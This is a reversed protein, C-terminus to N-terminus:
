EKESPAHSGSNSPGVIEAISLWGHDFTFTRARGAPDQIKVIRSHESSGAREVVYLWYRERHKCAREFQTRSLGVPRNQLDGTMAKVEIWRIPKQDPGLAVLDFGPNNTQTRLLDPEREIILTIAQDELNLRAQHDLGDPDQDDEEPHTAVYSFFERKGRTAMRTDEAHSTSTTAPGGGSVGGTGASGNQADHVGSHSGIGARAETGHSGEPDSVAATPDPQNGLLGTLADAVSEPGTEDAPQVPEDRIGLRARLDTESTVGLEKLLDLIGPDIGAEIALAEIVPPKFRIKSQLFPNVKWGTQEFVTFEPPRLVGNRDPVWASENLRKIFAADFTCSRHQFYFWKYTGSFAGPGRRDQIDCLAEWLVRAKAAAEEPGAQSLTKFLPDLGRLTYDDVKGNGSINAAEARTRMELLEQASFRSRVPKLQLYATAGCAELLERADEGRLCPYDDDVLLVGEVGDFLAKLRKTAIYLESPRSIGQWGSGADVVMVFNSKRLATLLKDRQGKSDTQFATIIRTIDSEYDEIQVEPGRYRPLLNRVVDDVPDPQRLQLLSFFKRAGESQCVVPRVTPFDTAMPGPLFAQPKEDNFPTVHTGDKLRVVPVEGFGRNYVLSPQTSLFEYFRIIWRDNQAELFSKSLRPLISEPVVEKIGLEKMLYRRLDPTLDPTIDENLWFMQGESQFLSGLQRPSFIERLSQTRALLAASAAVHGRGFRPLLRESLFAHRVAEFLPAFMSAEGFKSRDLPLSQLASTGLLGLRKLSRLAKVLLTGTEQVLRQNWRDYRPVNDRSPTTRYPGQVLFGLNTTVITPFFVILSSDPVRQVAKGDDSLAFAVEVFGVDRGSEDRVPSSFILWREETSETLGAQHGLVTVERIGDGFDQPKVRKYFGSAGGSVSWSVEEVQRLFLLARPGLTRLGDVVDNFLQDDESRIPLILVTQENKTEVAPIERPWVLSDVAFHEDGSHIQPHDTIAYISKFGIGFHGISTLDEKTSEAIGCIATVDSETFLRGFHSVRLATPSLDFAVARDGNWEGRKRLADEANQLLEFIFHTRDDYREALLSPGYRGVDTGYKQVNRTKIGPYDSPM